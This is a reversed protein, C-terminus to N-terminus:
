GNKVSRSSKLAVGPPSQNNVNDASDFREGVGGGPDGKTPIEYYVEARATLENIGLCVIRKVAGHVHTEVVIRWLLGGSESGPFPLSLQQSEALAVRLVKDSPDDPDGRMFRVAVGGVAFVLSNREKDVIGLWLFEAQESARILRNRCWAYSRCHLAWLDDGLEENYLEIAEGRAKRIVDGIEVLRDQMLTPALHWPLKESM